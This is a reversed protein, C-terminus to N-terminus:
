EMVWRQTAKSASTPAVVKSQRGDHILWGLSRCLLASDAIGELAHWGQTAHSDHWEVVVLPPRKKSM